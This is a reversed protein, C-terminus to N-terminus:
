VKFGQSELGDEYGFPIISTAWGTGPLIQLITLYRIKPEQEVFNLETSHRDCMKGRRTNISNTVYRRKQDSKIRIIQNLCRSKLQICSVKVQNLPPCCSFPRSMSSPGLNVNFNLMSHSSTVMLMLFCYRFVLGTHSTV